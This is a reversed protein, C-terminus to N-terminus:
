VPSISPPVSPPLSPLPGLPFPFPLSSPLVLLSTLSLSFLSLPVPTHSVNVKLQFVSITDGDPDDANYMESIAVGSNVYLVFSGTINPPRNDANSILMMINYNIIFMHIHLDSVLCTCTDAHGPNVGVINWDHKSIFNM